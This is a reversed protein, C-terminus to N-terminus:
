EGGILQARKLMDSKYRQVPGITAYDWFTKAQESAVDRFSHLSPASGVFVYCSDTALELTLRIFDRIEKVLPYAIDGDDYAHALTKDRVPRLVTRLTHFDPEDPQLRKDWTATIRRRIRAIRDINLKAEAAALRPSIGRDRFWGEPTCAAHVLADREFEYAFRCLTFKTGADAQRADYPDSLRYATLIADRALAMRISGLGNLDLHQIARTLTSQPVLLDNITEWHAWARSATEAQERINTALQSLILRTEDIQGDQATATGYRAANAAANLADQVIKLDVKQTM